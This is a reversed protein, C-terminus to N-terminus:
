YKLCYKLWILLANRYTTVAVLDLVLKTVEFNSYSIPRWFKYSNYGIENSNAIFGGYYGSYCMAVNASYCLYQLVSYCERLM